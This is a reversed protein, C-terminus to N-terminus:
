PLSVGLVFFIYAGVVFHSLTPGILHRRRSFLWGWFMGPFFAFMAFLASMHLHNVSFMLAACFIASWRRRKGLLFSELGAQLACRVTFEQVIASALYIALLKLVQPKLLYQQWDTHEFLPLARWKANSQLLLWKMAALAACFPPTFVIAELLSWGLAKRGLGFDEMPYGTNAIFRWSGWGMLGIIPLSIFSTSTPLSQLRPLAALLIAYGCLLVVVKVILEGLAVRHREGELSEIGARRVRMALRKALLDRMPACREVVAFPLALVVGDSLMQITLPRPLRDFFGVDAIIEGPELEAIAHEVSPRLVERKRAEARGAMLVFLTDSTGGEEVVRTGAAYEIRQAGAELEAIAGDDLERFAEVERLSQM